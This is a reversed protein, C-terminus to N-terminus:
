LGESDMHTLMCIVMALESDTLRCIVPVLHLGHSDIDTLMFIVVALESDTLRYITFVLQFVM